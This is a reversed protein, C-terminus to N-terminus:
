KGSMEKLLRSGHRDDIWDSNIYSPGWVCVYVSIRAHVCVCLLESLTVRGRIYIYVHLLVMRRRRKATKKKKKGDGELAGRICIRRIGIELWVCVCQM